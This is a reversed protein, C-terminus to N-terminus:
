SSQSSFCWVLGSVVCVQSVQPQDDLHVVLRCCAAALTESSVRSINIDALMYDFVCVNYRKFRNVMNKLRTPTLKNQLYALPSAKQKNPTTFHVTTFRAWSLV